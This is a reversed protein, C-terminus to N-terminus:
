GKRTVAKQLREIVMERRAVTLPSGDIEALEFEDRALDGITTIHSRVISIRERFITLTIELLLGPHDPAEVLLLDPESAHFYIATEPRQGPRSTDAAHRQLAEVPM